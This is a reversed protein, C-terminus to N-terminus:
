WKGAGLHGVWLLSALQRLEQEQQQLLSESWILKIFPKNLVHETRMLDRGAMMAAEAVESPELRDTV